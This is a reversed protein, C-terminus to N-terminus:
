AFLVLLAATITIVVSYLLQIAGSFEGDGDADAHTHEYHIVTVYM